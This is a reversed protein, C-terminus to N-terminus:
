LGREFPPERRDIVPQGRELRGDIGLEDRHARLHACHGIHVETKQLRRRLPLKLVCSRRAFELATDIDLEVLNETRHRGRRLDPFRPFLDGLADRLWLSISSRIEARSVRSPTLFGSCGQPRGRRSSHPGFLPRRIVTGDKPKGRRGEVRRSAGHRRGERCPPAFHHAGTFVLHNKPDRKPRRCPRLGAAVPRGQVLLGIQLDAPRFASAGPAPRPPGSRCGKTPTNSPPVAPAAFRSM